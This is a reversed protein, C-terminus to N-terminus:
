PHGAVHGCAFPPVDVPLGLLPPLRCTSPALLPLRQDRTGPDDDRPASVLLRWPTTETSTGSLVIKLVANTGRTATNEIADDATTDKTSDGQTYGDITVPDTIDPLDSAPSITHPGNGSIAFEILDPAGDGPPPNPGDIYNSTM